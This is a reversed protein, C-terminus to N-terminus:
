RDQWLVLALGLISEVLYFVSSIGHLLGFRARIEGTMGGSAAATERLAAMFPQLAFYGVLICVLMGGALWATRKRMRDSSDHSSLRAMGLLIVASAVGIWAEIRFLRGAITGALISDALTAFLTPAVIYGITLLSGVWITVIFRRARAVIM